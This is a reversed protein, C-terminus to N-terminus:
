ARRRRRALVAAGTLVLLASAPEPIQAAQEPVLDFAAIEDIILGDNATPNNGGATSGYLRVGEILMREGLDVWYITTDAPVDARGLTIWSGGQMVQVDFDSWTWNPGHGTSVIRLARVYQPEQWNIACWNESAGSSARWSTYTYYDDTLSKTGYGGSGPSTSTTAGISLNAGPDTQMFFVDGIQYYGTGVDDNVEVRIGYAGQIATSLRVWNVSSNSLDYSGVLTNMPGGSTTAIYIDGRSVRQTGRDVHVASIDQPDTWREEYYMAGSAVPRWPNTGTNADFWGGSGTNNATWTGTGAIDVFPNVGPAFAGSGVSSLACVAGLVCLGRIGSLTRAM